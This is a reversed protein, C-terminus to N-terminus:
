VTRFVRERCSARGIQAAPAAEWIPPPLPSALGRTVAPASAPTTVPARGRSSSWTWAGWAGGLAGAALAVVAVRAARGRTAAWPTHAVVLFGRGSADRERELKKLAELILSM